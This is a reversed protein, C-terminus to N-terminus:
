IMPSCRATACARLSPALHPHITPCPIPTRLLAASTLRPAAMRAWMQKFEAIPLRSGVAFSAASHPSLAVRGEGVGKGRRWAWGLVPILYSYVPQLRPPLRVLSAAFEGTDGPPFYRTSHLTYNVRACVGQPKVPLM